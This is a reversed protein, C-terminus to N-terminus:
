AGTNAMMGRVFEPQVLSTNEAAAEKEAVYVGGATPVAWSQTSAQQAFTDAMALYSRSKQSALIKLDGVWKDAYRSYRAALMRCASAASRYLGNGNETLMWDLEENSFQQDTSLTDGILLRLQDRSVTLETNYTWSM